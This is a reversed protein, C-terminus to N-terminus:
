RVPLPKGQRIAEMVDDDCADNEDAPDAVIGSWVYSAGERVLQFRRVFTDDPWLLWWHGSRTTVYFVVEARSTDSPLTAACALDGASIPVVDGPALVPPFGHAEVCAPSPAAVATDFKDGTFARPWCRLSVIRVNSLGNNALEFPMLLPNREDGIPEYPTISISHRAVAYYGVFGLWVALLTKFHKWVVGVAGFIPSGRAMWNRMRPAPTGTAPTEMALPETAVPETALNEPLAPEERSAEPKHAAAGPKAGRKRRNKNKSKGM